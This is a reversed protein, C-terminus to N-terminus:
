WKATWAISYGVTSVIFDIGANASISSLISWVSTWESLSPLSLHAEAGWTRVDGHRTVKLFLDSVCWNGIGIRLQLMLREVRSTLNHKAISGICGLLQRSRETVKLCAM